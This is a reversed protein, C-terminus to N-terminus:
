VFAGASAKRRRRGPEHAASTRHVAKRSEALTHPGAGM